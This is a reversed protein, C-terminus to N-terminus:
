GKVPASELLQKLGELASRIAALRIAARDGHFHETLTRVPKRREAWALCVTGVPKDTSGGGPGAIGTIAVTLDARSSALAGEAMARATPESVAGFRALTETKVGLMERKAANTYTIFGRDYWHSSGPVATIVAGLWGGTCSEATALMVRRRKLDQGLQDALAILDSDVFM